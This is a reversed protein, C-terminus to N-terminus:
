EHRYFIPYLNGHDLVVKVAIHYECQSMMNLTVKTISDIHERYTHPYRDAFEQLTMADGLDHINM